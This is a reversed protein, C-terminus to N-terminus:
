FSVGLKAFRQKWITYQQKLYEKEKSTRANYWAPQEIHYLNIRSLLDKVNTHVNKKFEPTTNKFTPNIMENYYVNLHSIDDLGYKFHNFEHFITSRMNNADDLLSNVLGNDLSFSIKKDTRISNMIDDQHSTSGDNYLSYPVPAHVEIVRNVVSFDKNYLKNVDLGEKKAYFLGIKALTKANDETFKYQSLLIRKDNSQIYINNSKPANKIPNGNVDFDNIEAPKIKNVPNSIEEAKRAEEEERKADYFVLCLANAPKGNVNFQFTYTGEKKATVNTKITFGFDQRSWSKTSFEVDANGCILEVTLNNRLFRSTGSIIFEILTKKNIEIRDPAKGKFAITPTGANGRQTEKTWNGLVSDIGAEQEFYFISNGKKKEEM